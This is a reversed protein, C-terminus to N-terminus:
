LKAQFMIFCHRCFLDVFIYVIFRTRCDCKERLHGAFFDWGPWEEHNYFKKM